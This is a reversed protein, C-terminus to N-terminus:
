NRTMRKTKEKAKLVRAQLQECTKSLMRTMAPSKMSKSSSKLWKKISTVSIKMKMVTHPVKERKTKLIIIRMMSTKAAMFFRNSRSMQILIFAMLCKQWNRVKLIM